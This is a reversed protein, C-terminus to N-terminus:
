ENEKKNTITKASKIIVKSAQDYPALSKRLLDDVISSESRRDQVKKKRLLECVDESLRLHKEIIKMKKVTKQVKALKKLFFYWKPRSM